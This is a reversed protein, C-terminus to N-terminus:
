DIRLRTEAEVIVRGDAARLSLTCSIRVKDADHNVEVVTGSAEVEEGGFANGLFRAQSHEIAAGPFRAQLLNFLCALNAPGQNIVRDGLGMRRVAEADLHIPNDDHLVQAWVKMADASVITRLPAIEDGPCPLASM